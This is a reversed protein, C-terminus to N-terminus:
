FASCTWIRRGKKRHRTKVDKSPTPEKSAMPLSGERWVNVTEGESRVLVEHGCPNREGM